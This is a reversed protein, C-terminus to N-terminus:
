KWEHWEEWERKKQQRGIWWDVVGACIWYILAGIFIIGLIKMDDEMKLGGPNSGPRDAGFISTSGNVGRGAM